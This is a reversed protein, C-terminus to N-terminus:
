ELRYKEEAIRFLRQWVLHNFAVVAMVMTLTATLLVPYDAESAARAITAGIGVTMLTQGNFNVYESVISANWAGGAAVIAGTVIYPFLAPLILTRWRALGRLSMLTATYKLDQPIAAAGAIINFLLYWQTGMLMLLIAALNLGGTLKVLFLLIIPFVATAPISAVIQVIPQLVTALRPNTGIATGVPITWALAVALAIMVRLFTAGLGVAMDLWRDTPVALVLLAAWYLGWALGAAAVVAVARGLWAPFARGGAASRPRSRGILFGDLRAHLPRLLRRNIWAVIRSSLLADYFWSTQPVDTGMASMKFREAWALIPRWVLQDIAVIVLIITALGWLIAKTDGRNAAEQLYSGLGPLRFDRQGLTFIEAAMLFFWGGSWSMISNWILSM